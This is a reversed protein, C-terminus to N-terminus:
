CRHSWASWPCLIALHRPPAHPAQKVTTAIYEIVTDEDLTVTLVQGGQNVFVIGGTAENPAAIFVPQSSCSYFPCIESVRVFDVVCASCAVLTLSLIATQM